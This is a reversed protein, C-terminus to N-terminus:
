TRASAPGADPASSWQGSRHQWNMWANRRRPVCPEPELKERYLKALDVRTATVLSTVEVRLKRRQQWRALATPDQLQAAYRAVGEEEVATAFAENFSSDGPLYAM